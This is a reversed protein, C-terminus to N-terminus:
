RQYVAPQRYRLGHELSTLSESHGVFLFGGPALLEAFRQVLREQTPKDFYIMVNRCFIADFPGRMPWRAMLNLRAITVLARTEDAVRLRLGAEHRAAPDPADDRVFHRPVLAPPVDAVLEAAYSAARARALVRTSIDTALIRTERVRDAPLADRLVM